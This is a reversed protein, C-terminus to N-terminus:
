QNGIQETRGQGVRPPMRHSLVLRKVHAEQDIQGIVSPPMRLRREVWTAREGSCRQASYTFGCRKGAAGPRCGRM